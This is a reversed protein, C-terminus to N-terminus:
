FSDIFYYILDINVFTKKIEKINYETKRHRMNLEWIIVTYEKIKTNQLHCGSDFNGNSCTRNGGAFSGSPCFGSNLSFWSTSTNERALSWSDQPQHLATMFTMKDQM